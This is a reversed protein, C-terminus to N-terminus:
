KMKLRELCLKLIIHIIAAHSSITVKIPNSDSTPQTQVVAIFKRCHPCMEM